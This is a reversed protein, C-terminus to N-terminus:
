KSKERSKKGTYVVWSSVDIASARFFGASADSPASSSFFAGAFLVSGVSGRRFSSM